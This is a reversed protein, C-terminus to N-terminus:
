VSDWFHVFLADSAYCACQRLFPGIFIGLFPGILLVLHLVCVTGFISWYTDRLAVCVTDWVHYQVICIGHHLVCVTGFYIVLLVVCVTGFHNKLFNGLTIFACQELIKRFYCNELIFMM